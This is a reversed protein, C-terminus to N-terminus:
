RAGEELAMAAKLDALANHMREQRQAMAEAHLSCRGAPTGCTPCRPGFDCEGDHTGFHQLEAWADLVRQIALPDVTVTMQDPVKNM